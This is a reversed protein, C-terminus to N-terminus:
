AIYKNILQFAFCSIGRIVSGRGFDRCFIRFWNQLAVKLAAIETDGFDNRDFLFFRMGTQAKIIHWM